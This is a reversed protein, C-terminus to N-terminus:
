RARRAAPPARPISSRPSTTAPASWPRSASPRARAGREVLTGQGNEDLTFVNRSAATASALPQSGRCALAAARGRRAPEANELFYGVEGEQYASNLPLYVLGARLCASTSCCRRPPSRSRCPSATARRSGSARSSRRTARAARRPRPTPVDRATTSSCCRGARSRRSLAIRVARLPEANMANNRRNGAQDGRRGRGRGRYDAFAPLRSAARASSRPWRRARAAGPHRAGYVSAVRHAPAALAVYVGGGAQGLITLGSTRARRPAAGRARLGHRRHIRDARAARRRPARAHSACDLFCRSRARARQDAISGRSSPSAGRARPASRAAQRRARPIGRERRRAQRQGDILGEARTRRTAESLHARPGQPAGGGVAARASAQRCARARAGRPARAAGDVADGRAALAERLWARSMPRRRGARPQRREGERAGRGLAGGGGHRPVDRRAREHGRGVRPDRPGVDRAAHEPRLPAAARPPRAHERRRLLQQGLVAALPVGALAADLGARYLARFAGLAELGESVKAGASDLFLVLPSKSRRRRDQLLAASGSPRRARRDLRERLPERGAGRAGPPGDLTGRARAHPQRRARGARQFGLAASCRTALPAAASVAGGRPRSRSARARAGAGHAIQQRCSTGAAVIRRARGRRAGRAAAGGRGDEDVCRLARPRVLGAMGCCCSEIAECRRAPSRACCRSRPTSRASPRRTAIATCASRRAGGRRRWPLALTGAAFRRPSTNTPSSARRRPSRARAIAPFCRRTSTASRSSARPSSAWSRRHRAELHPALAALTRRAEARAEDIM